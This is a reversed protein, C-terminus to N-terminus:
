ANNPQFKCTGPRALSRCLTCAPLMKVRAMDGVLPGPPLLHCRFCFCLRLTFLRFFPAIYISFDICKGSTLKTNFKLKLIRASRFYIISIGVPLLSSHVAEVIPHYTDHYPQDLPHSNLQNAVKSLLILKSFLFTFSPFLFFFRYYLVINFMYYVVLQTALFM